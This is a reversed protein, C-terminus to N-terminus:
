ISVATRVTHELVRMLLQDEKSDKESVHRSESKDLLLAKLKTNAETLQLNKEGAEKMDQMVQDM